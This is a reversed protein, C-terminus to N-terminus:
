VKTPADYSDDEAGHIVIYFGSSKHVHVHPRQPASACRESALWGAMGCLLESGASCMASTSMVCGPGSATGAPLAAGAIGTVTACPGRRHIAGELRQQLQLAAVCGAEQRKTKAAAQNPPVQRRPSRMRAHRRGWQARLPKVAHAYVGGSGPGHGHRVQLLRGRASPFGRGPSHKPSAMDVRLSM